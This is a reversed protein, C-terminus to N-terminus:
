SRSRRPTSSRSACTAAPSNTCRTAASAACPTPTPSARAPKTASTPPATASRKGSLRAPARPSPATCGPKRRCGSARRRRSERPPSCCPRAPPIRRCGANPRLAGSSWGRRRCGATCNPWAKTGSRTWHRNSAAAPPTTGACRPPANADAAQQLSQAALEAQLADLRAPPLAQQQRLAGLLGYAEQSRGAAALAEARLALGRPPLPQARPADLADLAEAPANRALAQEARLLAQVAPHREGFAALHGSAAADDGRALAARAAHARAVAEAEGTAGNGAFKGLLQEARAYEGRQWAGLGDTLRAQAQRERHRRWARFPLRLLTWLLALAFALALLIGIGVAVTTTYDTGRFRVLVYGPDQLLLQALLAGLIALLLWFLVNRFLNMPGGTSPRRGGANCRRRLRPTLPDNGACRACNSCPPASSRPNRNCRCRRWNPPWDTSARC